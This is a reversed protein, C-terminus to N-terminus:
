FHNKAYSKNLSFAFEFLGRFFESMAVIGIVSTLIAIM